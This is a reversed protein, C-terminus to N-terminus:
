VQKPQNDLYVGGAQTVLSLSSIMSFGGSQDWTRNPCQSEIQTLCMCLIVPCQLGVHLGAYSVRLSGRTDHRDFLTIM